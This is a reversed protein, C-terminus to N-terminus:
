RVSLQDKLDMGVDVTAGSGVFAEERKKKEEMALKAEEEKKRKAERWKRTRESRDAM